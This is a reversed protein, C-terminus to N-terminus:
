LHAPLPAPRTLAGEGLEGPEPPGRRLGWSAKGEGPALGLTEENGPFWGQSRVKGKRALLGGSGAGMGPHWAQSDGEEEPARQARHGPPGSGRIFRGESQERRESEAEELGVGLLSETRQDGRDAFEDGALVARSGSNREELVM